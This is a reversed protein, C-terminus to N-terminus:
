SVLTQQGYFYDNRNNDAYRLEYKRARAAERDRKSESEIINAQANVADVKDIKKSNNQEKVFAVNAELTAVQIDAASQANVAKLYNESEIIRAQADNASTFRAASSNEKAILYDYKGTVEAAALTGQNTLEAVRVKPATM